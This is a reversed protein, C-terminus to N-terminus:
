LALYYGLELLESQFPFETRYHAAKQGHACRKAQLSVCVLMVSTRFSARDESLDVLSPTDLSLYLSHRNIPFDGHGNEYSM